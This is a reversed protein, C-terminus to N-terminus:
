SGDSQPFGMLSICILSTAADMLFPGPIFCGRSVCDPSSHQWNLCGNTMILLLSKKFILVRRIDLIVQKLWNDPAEVYPSFDRCLISNKWKKENFNYMVTQFWKYIIGNDYYSYLDYLFKDELNQFWEYGFFQSVSEPSDDVCLSIHKSKM